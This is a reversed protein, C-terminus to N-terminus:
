VHASDDYSIPRPEEREDGEAFVVVDEPAIEQKARVDWWRHVFTPPGFVRVARAFREEDKFGVFHM